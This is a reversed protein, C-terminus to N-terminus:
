TVTFFYRKNALWLCMILHAHKLWDMARNDNSNTAQKILYFKITKLNLWVDMFIYFKLSKLDRNLKKEQKLPRQTM